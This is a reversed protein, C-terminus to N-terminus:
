GRGKIDSKKLYISIRTSQRRESRYQEGGGLARRRKQSRDVRAAGLKFLVAESSRRFLCQRETRKTQELNRERVHLTEPLDAHQTRALVYTNPIM